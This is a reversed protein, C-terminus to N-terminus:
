KVSPNRFNERSEGAMEAMVVWRPPRGRGGWTALTDPHLYKPAVTNSGDHTASGKFAKTDVERSAYAKLLDELEIEHHRMLKVISDILSSRRNIRLIQARQQLHDIQAYIEALAKTQPM